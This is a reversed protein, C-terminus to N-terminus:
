LPPQMTYDHYIYASRRRCLRDACSREFSNIPHTFSLVITEAHFQQNQRRAPIQHQARDNVELPKAAYDDFAGCIVNSPKFLKERYEGSWVLQTHKEQRMAAWHNQSVVSLSRSSQLIVEGRRVHRLPPSDCRVEDVCPLHRGDPAPCAHGDM